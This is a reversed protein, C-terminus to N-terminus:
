ANFVCSFVEKVWEKPYCFFLTEHNMNHERIDPKLFHKLYRKRYKEGM